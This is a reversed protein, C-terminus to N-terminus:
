SFQGRLSFHALTEIKFDVHYTAILRCIYFMLCADIQYTIVSDPGSFNFFIEILDKKKQCRYSHKHM